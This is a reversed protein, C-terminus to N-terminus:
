YQNRHPKLIEIEKTKEQITERKRKKRKRKKEKQVEKFDHNQIEPKM